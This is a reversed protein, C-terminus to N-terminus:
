TPWRMRKALGGDRKVEDAKERERRAHRKISLWCDKKVKGVM